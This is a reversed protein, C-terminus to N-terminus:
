NEYIRNRDTPNHQPQLAIAGDCVTARNHANEDNQKEKKEANWEILRFRQLQKVHEDIIEDVNDNDHNDSDNKKEEKKQPRRKIYQESM